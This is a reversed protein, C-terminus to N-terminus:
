TFKLDDRATKPVERARASVGIVTVYNMRARSNGGVKGIQTIWVLETSDAVM